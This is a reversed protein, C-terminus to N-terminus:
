RGGGDPHVVEGWSEGQGNAPWHGEAEELGTAYTTVSKVTTTTPVKVVKGDWRESSNNCFRAYISIATQRLTFAM